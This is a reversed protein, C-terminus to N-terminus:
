FSRRDKDSTLTFGSGPLETIGSSGTTDRLVELVGPTVEEWKFVPSKEIYVRWAQIAIRVVGPVDFLRNAIAIRNIENEPSWYTEKSIITQYGPPDTRLHIYVGEDTANGQAGKYYELKYELAAM